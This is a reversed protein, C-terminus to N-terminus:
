VHLQRWDGSIEARERLNRNKEANEVHGKRQTPSHIKCMYFIVNSIITKYIKIKVPKKNSPLSESNQV